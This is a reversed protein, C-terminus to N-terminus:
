RTPVYEAFAEITGVGAPVNLTAAAHGSADTPTSIATFVQGAAAVRVTLRTGRPIQETALNITIAASKSFVVDPVTTDGGPPDDIPKGDVTTIRIMGSPITLGVALPPAKSFSSSPFAEGDEGFQYAEVRAKGKPFADLTGNGTVKNAVLRISGGAGRGGNRLSGGGNARISGDVRITDSSAM